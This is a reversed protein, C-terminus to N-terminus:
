SKKDRKWLFGESLNEFLNNVWWYLFHCHSHVITKLQFNLYQKTLNM